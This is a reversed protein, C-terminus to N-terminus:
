EIKVTSAAESLAAVLFSTVEAPDHSTAPARAPDVVVASAVPPNVARAFHNLAPV